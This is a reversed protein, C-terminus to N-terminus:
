DGKIRRMLSDRVTIEDHMGQQDKSVTITIKQTFSDANFITEFNKDDRGICVLSDAECSNKWGVMTRLFKVFAETKNVGPFNAELSFDDPMGLGYLDKPSPFIKMIEGDISFLNSTQM